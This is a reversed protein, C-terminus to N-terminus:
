GLVRVYVRRTRPGDFEALYIGQWTGLLPRGEHVILTQAVGFMSTKLHADSNGEGHHFEGDRPIRTQLWHLLDRGVAPDTNENVTIAATTHASQIVVVGERVGTARIAAEVQHTIDLMAERAPTSVEFHGLM